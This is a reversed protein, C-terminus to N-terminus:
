TETRAESKKSRKSRPRTGQLKPGNVFYMKLKGRNKVAISGRYTCDFSDSILGYTGEAVNIRGAESAGEMRSAINVTDGWIDYAFKKIGVVGAVVPGSNIGIRVDFRIHEAEPDAKVADVLDRMELAANVVREAHDSVPFPLGSACMYADGVTKIKELGYKDIIEDFRVFYFDLSQVLKEPDINEAYKTFGKFDTFLVTVADFRKARVRGKTKLEQATEKPLINLLLQESRDRESSIIKNTSQIYRYRRYGGVAFGILLLATAGLAWLAARQRKQRLSNLELESKKLELESEQQVIRFEAKQRELEAKERELRNMDVTELNMSDKYQLHTQLHDYAERYNGLLSDLQALVLSSKWIQDKMKLRRANQFSEFAWYKARQLDGRDQYIEALAMQFQSIAAYDEGHELMEIASTMEREAEQDYGTGAYYMGMSGTAYALGTEYGIAKFISSAEELAERAEEFDGQVLNFDALNYLAEGLAKPGIPDSQVEPDMLLDISKRFSDEAKEPEGSEAYTFGQSYLATSERTKSGMERAVREADQYAQLVLDLDGQNVQSNGKHLYGLYLYELNDAAKALDILEEAYDLAQDPDNMENYALERLVEMRDTGRLTDALYVPRLSDAIQQRQGSLALPHGVLFLLSLYLYAGKKLM